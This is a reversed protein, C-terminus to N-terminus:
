VWATSTGSTGSTGRAHTAQTNCILSNAEGLLFFYQRVVNRRVLINRCVGPHELVLYSSVPRGNKQYKQTLHQRNPGSGDLDKSSKRLPRALLRRRLLVKNNNNTTDNNTGVQQNKLRGSM